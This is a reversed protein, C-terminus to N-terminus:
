KRSVANKLNVGASFKVTRRSPIKIAQGTVPNRGNRAKRQYTSFTGFGSLTVHDGRKLATTIGAMVREIIRLAAAKSTNGEVVILEIVDAKNM